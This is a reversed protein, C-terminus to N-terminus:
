SFTCQSVNLMLQGSYDKGANDQSVDELNNFNAQITYVVSVNERPAIVFSGEELTVTTVNHLNTQSALQAGLTSSTAGTIERSGTLYFELDTDLLGNTNVFADSDDDKTYTLQYPCTMTSTSGSNDVVMSLVSDDGTYTTGEVAEAMQAATVELTVDDQADVVISSVTETTVDVNSAANGSSTATFYAFTAGVVAVLLTAVAIITLLMTNKKETM